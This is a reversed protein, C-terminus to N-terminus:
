STISNVLRNEKCFKRLYLANRFALFLVDFTFVFCGTEYFYKMNDERLSSIDPRHIKSPIINGNGDKAIGTAVDLTLGSNTVTTSIIKIPDFEPHHLKYKKDDKNCEYVERTSDWIKEHSAHSLGNSIDRTKDFLFYTYNNLMGSSKAKSLLASYEVKRESNSLIIGKNNANIEYSSRVLCETFRSLGILTVTLETEESLSLEIPSPNETFIKNGHKNIMPILYELYDLKIEEPM